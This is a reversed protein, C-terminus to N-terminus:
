AIKALRTETKVRADIGAVEIFVIITLNAVSWKMLFCSSLNFVSYMIKKLNINPRETNITIKNKKKAMGRWIKKRISLM